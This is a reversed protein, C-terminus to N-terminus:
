AFAPITVRELVHVRLFLTCCGSCRIHRLGDLIPQGTDITMLADGVMEGLEGVLILRRLLFLIIKNARITHDNGNSYRNLVPTSAPLAPRKRVLEITAGAQNVASYASKRSQNLGADALCREISQIELM